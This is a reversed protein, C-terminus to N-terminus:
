AALGEAHRRFVIEHVHTLLVGSGEDIHVRRDPARFAKHDDATLDPRTLGGQQFLGDAAQVAVELQKMDRIGVQLGVIEEPQQDMLRADLGTGFAFHGHQEGDHIVQLHHGVPAGGNHQRYILRLVEALFVEFIDAHQGAKLAEAARGHSDDQQALGLELVMDALDLLKGLPYLQEEVQFAQGFLFGAFVDVIAQQDGTVLTRGQKIFGHHLINKGHAATNGPDDVLEAIAQHHAGVGILSLYQISPIQFRDSLIQQPILRGNAVM